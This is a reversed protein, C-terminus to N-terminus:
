GFQLASSFWCFGATAFCGFDSGLPHMELRHRHALDRRESMEPPFLPSYSYAEMMFAVLRGYASRVLPSNRLLCFVRNIGGTGGVADSNIVARNWTVGYVPDLARALKAATATPDAVQRALHGWVLGATESAASDADRRPLKAITTFVLFLPLCAFPYPRPGWLGVYCLFEPLSIGGQTISALVYGGLFSIPPFFLLCPFYFCFRVDKKEGDKKEGGEKQAKALNPPNGKAEKGGKKGLSAADSPVAPSAGEDGDSSPSGGTSLREPPVLSGANDLPCAIVHWEPCFVWGIDPSNKLPPPSHKPNAGRTIGVFSEAVHSSSPPHFITM